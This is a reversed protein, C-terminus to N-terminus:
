KRLGTFSADYSCDNNGAVSIHATISDGLASNLRLTNATWTGTTFDSCQYTGAINDGDISGTYRCTTSGFVSHEMEITNDVVEFKMDASTANFPFGSCNPTFASQQRILTGPLYSSIIGDFDGNIGNLNIAKLRAPNVGEGYVLVFQSFDANAKFRVEYHSSQGGEKVEVIPLELMRSEVTFVPTDAMTPSSALLLAILSKKM